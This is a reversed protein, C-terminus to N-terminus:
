FYPPILYLFLFSVIGRSPCCVGNAGAAYGFASLDPVADPTTHVCDYIDGIYESTSPWICGAGGYAGALPEATASSGVTCAVPQPMQTAGGAGLPHNPDNLHIKFGAGEPLPCIFFPPSQGGTGQDLLSICVWGDRTEQPM